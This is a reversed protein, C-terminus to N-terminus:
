IMGGRSISKLQRLLADLARDLVQAVEGTPVAHALLNQARRLKDRREQGLTV